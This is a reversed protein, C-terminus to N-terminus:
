QCPKSSLNTLEQPRRGPCKRWGPRGGAYGQRGLWTLSLGEGKSHPLHLGGLGVPRVCPDVIWMHKRAVKWWWGTYSSHRTNGSLWFGIALLVHAKGRSHFARCLKSWISDNEQWQPGKTSCRCGDDGCLKLAPSEGEALWTCDSYAKTGNGLASGVLPLSPAKM